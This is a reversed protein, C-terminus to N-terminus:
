FCRPPARGFVIGVQRSMLLSIRLPLRKPSLTIFLLIGIVVAAVFSLSAFQCIVCDHQFFDAASLHGGHPIHNVCADCTIHSSAGEDHIHLVTLMMMPLFVALLWRAVLRRRQELRNMAPAFTTYVSRFVLSTQTKGLHLRGELNCLLRM